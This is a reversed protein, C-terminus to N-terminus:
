ARPSSASPDNFVPLSAYFDAQQPLFQMPIGLRETQELIRERSPDITLYPGIVVATPQIAAPLHFYIYNCMFQDMVKYITRDCSWQIAMRYASAYDEEIGLM